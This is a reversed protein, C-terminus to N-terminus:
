DTAPNQRVVRRQQQQRGARSLADHGIGTESLRKAGKVTRWM